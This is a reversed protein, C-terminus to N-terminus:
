SFLALVCQLLFRQATERDEKKEFVLYKFLEGITRAANQSIVEVNHHFIPERQEPLMFNFAGVRDIIEDIKIEDVFSLQRYISFRDFNCLIIYKPKQSGPGIVKEPNMEIWYDRAQAFHTELDRISRKKMEILVGDRNPPSWICDAFKTRGSSFKIRAELTGNAEIIGAHGFARFFRDCFLQAEGKEDGKLQKAYTVFEQLKETMSM